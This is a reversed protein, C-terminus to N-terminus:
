KKPSFSCYDNSGISITGREKGKQYLDFIVSKLTQSEIADMFNGYQGRCKLKKYVCASVKSGDIDITKFYLDGDEAAKILKMVKNYEATEKVEVTEKLKANKVTIGSILTIDKEEDSIELVMGTNDTVVYKKGMRFQAKGSRESVIIEIKDPLKRKVDVTEIYLNKKIRKEALLPHVDFINEGTKIESLKVIEEDSIEKNGGVAIGNINFYDVHLGIYIGTLVAVLIIFKLLYRKKRRKKRVPTNRNQKKRRM